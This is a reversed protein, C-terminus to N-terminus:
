RRVCGASAEEGPAAALGFAVDGSTRAGRGGLKGLMTKLNAPLLPVARARTKQGQGVHGILSKIRGLPVQAIVNTGLLVAATRAATKKGIRQRLPKNLPVMTECRRAFGWIAECRWTWLM